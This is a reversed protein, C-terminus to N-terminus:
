RRNRLPWYLVVFAALCIGTAILVALLIFLKHRYIVAFFRVAESGAPPVSQTSSYDASTHQQM